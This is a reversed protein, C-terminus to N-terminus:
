PAATYEASTEDSDAYDPRVVFARITAPGTLHIIGSQGNFFPSATTPPSGDITYYIRVTAFATPATNTRLEIDGPIAVAGADPSFTVDAAKFTFTASTVDSDNDGSRIAYAKVTVPGGGSPADVPIPSGASYQATQPNQESPTSGDVTYLITAGSTSSSLGVPVPNAFIGGNPSFSVPGVDGKPLNITITAVAVTSLATTSSKAVARITTTKTILIPSAYVVSFTNPNTGDLTFFIDADPTATSLTVSQTATYTGESPSFTVAAAAPLTITYSSSRVESDALGSKTALAKITKSTTLVLPETYKTSTVTPASGDLTFYITAGATATALSVTVTGAFSGSAPDFSVPAVADSSTDIVYAAASIEGDTLGDKTAFAKVTTSKGIAIPAGPTYVDSARTPTSGDTTYHITAGPTDTDLTVSTAATYTGAPPDFTVPAVVKPAAAITYLASVVTSTADGLRVVAKVTTTTAIALPAVYVSSGVAPETGDLTYYITAGAVNTGLTVTVPATFTGAAPVFTAPDLLAPRGSDPLPAGGDPGFGLFGGSFHTIPATALGGAIETALPEYTTANGQKSWFVRAGSSSGKFRVTAPKAFVLGDPAFLYLPTLATYYTAPVPTTSETVTISTGAPVAGAPIDLEVAGLSFTGGAEGITQTSKAGSGIPNGTTPGATEDDSCGALALVFLAIVLAAAGLWKGQYKM